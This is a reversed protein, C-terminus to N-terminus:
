GAIERTKLFFYGIVAACTFYVLAATVHQGVLDGYINYGSAVFLSTDFQRYDPLVYTMGRMIGMFLTDIVKIVRDAWFPVELDTMLNQQLVLRILSEIPGGGMQVGSAVDRVFQGFFGLGVAGVTALAAVPGSLFTSFMVGFGTVLLMQLWVSFFGKAFNLAFPADRPRLYVDAQAMGFYQSRERCRIVVDVQGRYTLDKFLDIKREGGGASPAANLERPIPFQHAVFERSEFPIPGSSKIKAEPDPNRIIIEGLVGREINGKYTRFVSINMELPLGSPYRDETINSFRWIAASQNNGGEIYGRYTWEYGVNIGQEVVTGNRDLVTLKGFVPARAVLDGRNPGVRYVPQGNEQAITIPHFHGAAPDTTTINGQPDIEIRHLHHHDKSTVGERTGPALASSRAEHIEAPNVVHSHALGRLVFVYSILCMAALMVTGVAMFGAVRGLIIEGARIPKTVVTYITRNKIDNPLSFASLLLAMMILLFNTTTLVFSLYTRAPNSNEVDLFLGAFLLLLLFVAFAIVVKHRIAEHMAVRAVALTRRLSFRPLDVTLGEYIAKAVLYFGESPGHKVAALLFWVFPLGISLLFIIAVAGPLFGIHRWSNTNFFQLKLPDGFLWEGYTMVHHEFPM